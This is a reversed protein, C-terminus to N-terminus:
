VLRIVRDPTSEGAAVSAVVGPMAPYDFAHFEFNKTCRARVWAIIAKEWRIPTRVSGLRSQLCSGTNFPFAAM